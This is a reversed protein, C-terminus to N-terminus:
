EGSGAMQARVRKLETVLAQARRQVEEPSRHEAILTAGLGFAVAGAQHFAGLQPADIGGTVMFRADPFPGRMARLYGPGVESAPFLKLFRCEYALARSIETATLVGPVFAVDLDQARRITVEDTGPAVLFLAGARVAEDVQAPGM